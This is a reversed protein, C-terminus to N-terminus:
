KRIEVKVPLSTLKGKDGEGAALKMSWSVRLPGQADKLEVLKAIAVRGGVYQGSM